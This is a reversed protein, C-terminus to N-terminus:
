MMTSDRDPQQVQPWVDVEICELESRLDVRSLSSFPLPSSFCLSSLSILQKMVKVIEYEMQLYEYIISVSYM